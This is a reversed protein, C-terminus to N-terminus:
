KEMGRLTRLPLQDFYSKYDIGQWLDLMFPIKGRYSVHDYDVRQLYLGEGPACIGARRRDKAAFIDDLEEGNIRGRAVDVVTGVLNRVMNKLFGNSRLLFAILDDKKGVQFDTLARVTGKITSGSGMFSSFDKEGEMEKLLPELSEVDIFPSPLHWVYGRYFPPLVSGNYILYIYTKRKAWKRSHFELPVEESQLVRMDHPLIANLAKSFDRPPLTSKTRFNVPQAVAHVGSDTRGSAVVTVKEGTLREISEVLVGQVTRCDRQVQYGCFDNGDYALLLLINRMM